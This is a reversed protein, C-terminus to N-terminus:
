KKLSLVEVFSDVSDEDITNIMERIPNHEIDLGLAERAINLAEERCGHHQAELTLVIRVIAKKLERDSM